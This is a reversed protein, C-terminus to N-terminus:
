KGFAQELIPLHRYFMKKEAEEKSLFGAWDVEEKQLLDSVVVPYVFEAIRPNTIEVIFCFVKKYVKGKKDTYEIIIPVDSKIMGRSFRVGIEEETERIAADIVDEGNEIEGKPISYTGNWSANTPHCLLIKNDYIIALGASKKM